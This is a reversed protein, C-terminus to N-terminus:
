DLDYGTIMSVQFGLVQQFRGAFGPSMIDNITWNGSSDILMQWYVDPIKEVTSDSRIEYVPPMGTQGYFTVPLSFFTIILLIRIYRM